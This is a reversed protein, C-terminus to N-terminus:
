SFVCMPCAGNKSRFDKTHLKCGNTYFSLFWFLIRFLYCCTCLTCTLYYDFVFMVFCLKKSPVSKKKIIICFFSRLIKITAAFHTRHTATKKFINRLKELTLSELKGGPTTSFLTGGPTSSYVEPMQSPDTILVKRSPIVQAHSCAQRAIPSASM